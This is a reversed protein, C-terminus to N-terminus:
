LKYMKNSKRSYLYVGLIAFLGGGVAIYPIVSGTDPTNPIDPEDPDAPTQGGCIQDYQEKTVEGGNKDYYKNDIFNCNLDLLSYSLNCQKKNPDVIDAMVTFLETKENISTGSKLKLIYRVGTQTSFQSVISFKSGPVIQNVKVNDQELLEVYVYGSANVKTVSHVQRIYKDGNEKTEWGETEMVVYNGYKSNPLNSAEILEAAWANPMVMFISLVIVSLMTILRKM